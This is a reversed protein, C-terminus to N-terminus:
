FKPVYSIGREEEFNEIEEQLKEDPFSKWINKIRSLAIINEAEDESIGRTGLYFLVKEDLRGISAGHNGEVDDEACLILPITQNVLKDGLLLVNESETGKSGSCGNKFDISGRYVKKSKEELTGSAEMYAETNKGMHNSVYNMDILQNEKAHYGTNSNFSSENGWLDVTVGAYIKKAGLELKTVNIKARDKAIGGINNLSVSEKGLIEASYIDVKSGEEAYVETELASLSKGEDKFFLIVKMHSDKKAHLILRSGANENEKYSYTLILPKEMKMNEETEAFSPAAEKLIESLERHAEKEKTFGEECFSEKWTIEKEDFAASPIYNVTNEELSVQADNMGLRNWTKSPLKNVTLNIPKGMELGTM